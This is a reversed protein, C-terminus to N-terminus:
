IWGGSPAAGPPIGKRADLTPSPPLYAQRFSPPLDGTYDYFTNSQPHYMVERAQGAEKKMIRAVLYDAPSPFDNRLGAPVEPHSHLSVFTGPPENPRAIGDGPEYRIRGNPEVKGDVKRFSQTFEGHKRQTGDPDAAAIERLFTKAAAATDPQMLVHASPRDSMFGSRFAQAPDEVAQKLRATVPTDPLPPLDASAPRPPRAPPVTNLPPVPPRSNVGPM